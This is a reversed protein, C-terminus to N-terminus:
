EIFIVEKPSKLGPAGYYKELNGRIKIKKRINQPNDVLNLQDRIKGAPLEVPMIKEKNNEYMNDALAIVTPRYEYGTADIDNTFGDIFPVIFGGVIYGEVWVNKQGQNEQAETISYPSSKSGLISPAKEGSEELVVDTAPATIWDVIEGTTVIVDGDGLLSVNFPYKTTKEFSTYDVADAINYKYVKENEGFIFWVALESIDADPLLICEAFSGDNSIKTEINGYGSPNLIIGNALDFLAERATNAVLVRLNNSNNSSFNSINFELKSLQHIFRMAVIADNENLETCNNSYMLDISSQSDQNHLSIPYYYEDVKDTYPYYGIFDVDSGDDPFYIAMTEDVPNFTNGNGTNKYLVNEAIASSSLRSGSKVMYIGLEDGKEWSTGTARTLSGEITANLNIQEGLLSWNITKGECSILIICIIILYYKSKM